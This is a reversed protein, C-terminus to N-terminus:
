KPSQPSLTVTDTTEHFGNQAMAREAVEIAELGEAPTAQYQGFRVASCLRITQAMQLWLESPYLTKSQAILEEGTKSSGAVGHSALHLKIIRALEEGFPLPAVGAQLWKAKLAALQEALALGPEAVAARWVPKSAPTRVFFWWVALGLLFIVAGWAWWQHWWPQPLDLNALEKIDAYPKISDPPLTMVELEFPASSYAGIHTNFAPIQWRGSDFSTIILDQTSTVMGNFSSISVPKRELLEFRGLTDSPLMASDAASSKISITLRIPEGLLFSNREPLVEIGTQATCVLSQAVLAATASIAQWITAL